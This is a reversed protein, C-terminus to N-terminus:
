ISIILLLLFFFLIFASPCSHNQFHAYDRMLSVDDPPGSFLDSGVQYAFNLFRTREDGTLAEVQSWSLLLEDHPDSREAWVVEGARILSRAFLGRGSIPSVKMEVKRHLSALPGEGFHDPGPWGVGERAPRGEGAAAAEM